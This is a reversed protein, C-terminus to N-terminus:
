RAVTVTSPRGNVRLNTSSRYGAWTGREADRPVSALRPRLPGLDLWVVAFGDSSEFQRVRRVNWDPNRPAEQPRQLLERWGPWAHAADRFVLLVHRVDLHRRCAEVEEPTIALSVVPRRAHWALTPGLNSMVPEGPPIEQSMLVALELLTLTQPVGREPATRLAELNGRVTQFTGWGLAIAAVVLALASVRAPAPLRTLLAWAALMGAAELVSRVPFLYRLWPVGLAAIFLSAVACGLLVAGAVEPGRRPRAIAVWLVLAGVWLARAGTLMSLILEPLNRGVKQALLGLAVLGTPMRPFETAHFLTLWDWGGIGDWISLASLDSAPSGFARWKYFWWPALPLAFGLMVLAFVRLRGRPVALAAAGLAFIPSLWLMAGRFSGTVGLLLGFLLPRRPARELALGAVAAILGATFPLETFGGIAFHQAEPDLLFTLGVVTGAAACLGPTLGAAHRALIRAVALGLGAASALFCIFPLVVVLWQRQDPRRLQFVHLGAIRLEPPTIRFLAAEALVLGPQVTALPWPPQPHRPLELPLAFTTALRGHQALERAALAYQAADYGLVPSQRGLGWNEAHLLWLGSGCFTILVFM